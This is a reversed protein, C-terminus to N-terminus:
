FNHQCHQDNASPPMKLEQENSFFRSFTSLEGTNRIHTHIVRYANKVM